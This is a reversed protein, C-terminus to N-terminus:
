SDVFVHFSEVCRICQDIASIVDCGDTSEAHSIVLVASILLLVVAVIVGCCDNVEVYESCIQHGCHESCCQQCRRHCHCHCHCRHFHHTTIFRRISHCGVRSGHFM